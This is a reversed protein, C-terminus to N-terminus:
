FKQMVVSPMERRLIGSYNDNQSNTVLSRSVSRFIHQIGANDLDAYMSKASLAQLKQCDEKMDGDVSIGLVIVHLKSTQEANMSSIRWLYQKFTKRNWSGGDTVLVLFSDDNTLTEPTSASELLAQFALETLSENKDADEVPFTEGLGINEVFIHNAEIEKKVSCPRPQVILDHSRGVFGIYDYINCHNLYLEMLFDRIKRSMEPNRGSFGERVDVAFTVKKPMRISYAKCSKSMSAIDRRMSTMTRVPLSCDEETGVLALFAESATVFADELIFEDESLMRLALNGGELINEEALYLRIVAAELQQRRGILSISDFLPGKENAKSVHLLREADDILEQVDWVASLNEVHLFETLGSIRQLLHEFHDASRTYLERREIWFNQADYDLNKSRAIDRCGQENWHSHGDEAARRLCFIGRNFLRDALQQAFEAKEVPDACEEFHKEAISVSRDLFGLARDPTIGSSVYDYGCDPSFSSQRKYAYYLNGLNNCIVGIAKEDGMRRFIHLSKMMLIQSRAIDGSFFTSISIQFLKYLQVFARYVQDSEASGGKLPPVDIDYQLRNINRAIELLILYPRVVHAVMHAMFIFFGLTVLGVLIFYILKQNELSKSVDNKIADFPARTLSVFSAVGVSYVLEERVHVGRSYNSADVVELLREKVPAFALILEQTDGNEDSRGFDLIGTSGNQMRFLVEADFYSRDTGDRSDYPFLIDGISASSVPTSEEPRVVTNSGEQDSRPTIVFKIPEQTRDFLTELERPFFDMLSQGVYEGSSPNAIAGSITIANLQGQNFTYLPTIYTPSGEDFYRQKAVSYWSRCRPDYGHKGEPCLDENVVFARNSQSSRFQADYAYGFGCGMFGTSLGDAEFSVMTGLDVKELGAAVAYSYIPIEIISLPSLVRVRDYTTEYGSANAGKTAGPLESTSNWWLTTNASYDFEPFSTAKTRVGTVADADRAQAVFFREPIDRTYNDGYSTCEVSLPNADRWECPCTTTKSGFFPCPNERDYNKCQETVTHVQTFSDSRSVAGFLLWGSMRTLLHIDRVRHSLALRASAAKRLATNQITEKELGQSLDAAENVWNPIESTIQHGVIVCILVNSVILPIVILFFVWCFISSSYLKAGEVSPTSQKASGKVFVNHGKHKRKLIPEGSVESTSKSTGDTEDKTGTSENRIVSDSARQGLRTNEYSYQAESFYFIKNSVERTAPYTSHSPGQGSFGSIMEKFEDILENLETKPGCSIRASDEHFEAVVPEEDAHVSEGDNPALINSTYGEIWVLPFTLVLSVWWIILIAIVLCAIGIALSLLLLSNIDSSVDDEFSTTDRYADESVSHIMFFLPRYNPDYTEPIPPVPNLTYLRSNSILVDYSVFQVMNEPNEPDRVGRLTLFSAEDIFESDFIMQNGERLYNTDHLSSSITKGDYSVLAVHADESVRASRLIADIDNQVVDISSCGILEGTLRDFVGSGFTVLTLKNSESTYPGYFSMQKGGLIFERCFPRELANFHRQPVLEGEKRCQLIEDETALPKGTYPNIQRLWDCGISKYPPANGPFVMGPMQVRSGAGQNKFDVSMRLALPLTEYLPKMLLGISAAKEYLAQNETTPRVTGGTAIDNHSETCGELYTPKAPDTEAPDCAGQQFYVPSHTSLPFEFLELFHTREQLQEAANQENINVTQAWELPIPDPKLPYVNTDTDMDRFPVYTDNEWGDLRYGTIRDMTFEVLLQSTGQINQLQKTFEDAASAASRILRDQVQMSMVNLSDDVITDGARYMFIGALAIVLSLMLTASIGLSAVLQLRLSYTPSCLNFRM